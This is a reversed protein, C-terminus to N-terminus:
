FPIMVATPVQWSLVRLLFKRTEMMFHLSYQIELKLVMNSLCFTGHLFLATLIFWNMMIWPEEKLSKNLSLLDNESIGGVETRQTELVVNEAEALVTHKEDISEVGDLSMIQTKLDDNLPNQLQIINLNNEPYERDDEAYNLSIEFDGKPMLMRAYNEATINNAINAVVLFLIGSCGLALITVATRRKNRQLNAYSLKSVSLTKFSKKRKQKGTPEQYRMAEVPSIGSAM